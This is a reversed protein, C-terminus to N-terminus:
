SSRKSRYFNYSCQLRIIEAATVNRNYLYQYPPKSVLRLLGFVLVAKASFCDRCWCGVNQARAGYRHCHGLGAQAQRKKNVVIVDAAFTLWGPSELHRCFSLITIRSLRGARVMERGIRRKDSSTQVTKIVYALPFSARSSMTPSTIIQMLRQLSTVPTPRYDSGFSRVLPSRRCLIM